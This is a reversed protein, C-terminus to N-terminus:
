EREEVRSVSAAEGSGVKHARKELGSVVAEYLRSVGELGGWGALFYLTYHWNVPTHGKILPGLMNAVLIGGGAEFLTQTWTKGKRVARMVAGGAGYLTAPLFLWALIRDTLTTFEQM